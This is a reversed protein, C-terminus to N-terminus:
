GRASEPGLGRGSHIKVGGAGASGGWPRRKRKLPREWGGSWVTGPERQLEGRWNQFVNLSAPLTVAEKGEAKPFAAFLTQGPGTGRETEVQGLEVVAEEGGRQCKRVYPRAGYATKGKGGAWAGSLGISGTQQSSPLARCGGGGGWGRALISGPLRSSPVQFGLGRGAAGGM